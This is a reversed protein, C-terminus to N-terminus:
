NIYLLSILDSEHTKGKILHKSAGSMMTVAKSGKGKEKSELFRHLVFILCLLLLTQPPSGPPQPLPLQSYPALWSPFLWGRELSHTWTCLEFTLASCQVQLLQSQPSPMLLFICVHGYVNSVKYRFWRLLNWYNNSDFDEGLYPFQSEFLNPMPGFNYIYGSASGPGLGLASKWAM